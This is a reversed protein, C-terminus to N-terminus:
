AVASGGKRLQAVRFLTGSIIIMIIAASVTLFLAPHWIRETLSAGPPVDAHYGLVAAAILYVTAIILVVALLYFVVLKWTNRRARDQAEFFDM